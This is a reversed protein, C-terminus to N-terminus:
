QSNGPQEQNRPGLHENEFQELSMYGKSELIKSMPTPIQGAEKEAAQQKEADAIDAQISQADEILRTMTEGGLIRELM